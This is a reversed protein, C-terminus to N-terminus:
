QHRERASMAITQPQIRPATVVVEPLGHAATTPEILAAQTHTHPRSDGRRYGALLMALALTVAIIITVGTWSYTRLM